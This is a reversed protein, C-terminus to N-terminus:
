GDKGMGALTTRRASVCYDAIERINKELKSFCDYEVTLYNTSGGREGAKAFAKRVSFTAADGDVREPTGRALRRERVINIDSDIIVVIDSMFGNRALYSVAKPFSDEDFYKYFGKLKSSLSPDLIMFDIGEPARNRLQNNYVLLRHSWKMLEFIEAPGLKRPSIRLFEILMGMSKFLSSIPNSRLKDFSGKRGHRRLTFRFIGAAFGKASLHESLAKSHSSKGTGSLAFFDILIPKGTPHDM